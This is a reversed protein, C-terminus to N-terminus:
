GRGEAELQRERLWIYLGAGLVIAAGIFITQDPTVAFILFDALTLFVLQVYIFPALSSAPAYRHAITMLQHGSWGFVGIAAFAIWGMPDSPWAWDLLAMPAVVVTAVLAAYFQQTNTPDVGALKRTWIGYLAAFLAAAVSFAIAWHAGAGGAGVPATIVLVGAFGILIATWRRPGVREGLLPASLACLFIPMSFFIAATLSMPLFSLATFNCITSVVLFLARLAEGRPSNSRLLSLGYVPFFAGAVVALHGLYRVFVVQLPALDSQTTLWRASTDIGTLCLYAALMMLIALSRNDAREHVEQVAM